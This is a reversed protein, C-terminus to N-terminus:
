LGAAIRARKQEVTEGGAGAAPAQKVFAGKARHVAKEREGGRYPIFSEGIQQGAEEAIDTKAQRVSLAAADLAHRMGAIFQPSMQGDKAPDWAQVKSVLGAWVGGSNKLAQMEAYPPARGNMGRAWEILAATQSPGSPQNLLDSASSLHRDWDNLSAAKARTTTSNIIKQTEDEIKVLHKDDVGPGTGEQGAIHKKKYGSLQEQYAKLFADPIKEEPIVGVLSSAYEAAGKAATEDEPFGANKVLTMGMTSIASLQKQKEAPADYEHIIDGASNRVTFKGGGSKPPEPASPKAATAGEPVLAAIEPPMPKSAGPPAPPLQNGEADVSTYSTAGRPGTKSAGALDAYGAFEPPELRKPKDQPAQGVTARQVNAPATNAAKGEDKPGPPPQFASASEEVTDGLRKFEQIVSLKDDPTRAKHLRDFLHERIKDNAANKKEAQAEGHEKYLLDHYRTTEDLQRNQIGQNAADRQRQIENAVENDKRKQIFEGLDGLSRGVQGPQSQLPAEYPTILSAIPIM